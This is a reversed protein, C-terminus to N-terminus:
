RLANIDAVEEEQAKLRMARLEAERKAELATTDMGYKEALAIDILSYAREAIAKRQSSLKAASGLRKVCDLRAAVADVDYAAVMREVAGMATDADGALIAVDRAVRLLVFRGVPDGKSKAAQDM